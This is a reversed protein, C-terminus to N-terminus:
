PLFFGEVGSSLVGLVVSKRVLVDLIVLKSSCFKMSGFRTGVCQLLTAVKYEDYVGVDQVHGATKKGSRRRFGFHRPGLFGLSMWRLRRDNVYVLRERSEM